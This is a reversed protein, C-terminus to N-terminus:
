FALLSASVLAFNGFLRSSTTWETSHVVLERSFHPFWTLLGFLRSGTSWEASHVVPEGPFHPFLTM